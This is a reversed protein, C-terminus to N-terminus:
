DAAHSGKVSQEDRHALLRYEEPTNINRFSSFDPDLAAIQERPVRRIRALDFFSLISREGERLMKAMGPLCSKDYLAHLPELGGPTEPVIVDAGGPMGSLERILQPNLGPMDCAIVFARHATCASLAAHIGALPGMGSYIDAIKRCPIFKYSEPSNTVLLVEDFLDSMLRYATEIIRTGNIELLAKNEGMRSSEGGALIVGAVDSFRPPATLRVREPCAAIRFSEGRVYGALGIGAERCIRVAMDTPSTRSAILAVGLSAAKAAMETSVRGSTLLLCGTLDIGSLLAQGALRDITNHRGLDEAHLLIRTGDSVAASHIGGHRGYRESLHSMERMMAFIAEPTFTTEPSAAKPAGANFTFTIGAGCGSTLTPTLREPLEGRIRVNAEGSEDCVGLVLFDGVERVFGQTRLFGAVLFRLEHPSAVLTAIERGNVTLKIPFEAPFEDPVESTIGKDYRLM